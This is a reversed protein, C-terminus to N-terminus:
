KVVSMQRTVIPKNHISVSYTYIGASLTSVDLNLQGSGSLPFSRLNKGANDYVTLQANGTGAPIQYHIITTSRAPNPYNQGLVVSTLVADASQRDSLRNLQEQLKEIQDQQEQMAKVLIPILETYNVALITESPLNQPTATEGNSTSSKEMAGAPISLNPDMQTEKVLSPLVKELEQALVGYHTGPNSTLGVGLGDRRFSYSRPHIKKILSLAGDIEQINEKLRQDSAVFNGQSFVNGAFYGAYAAANVSHAYLGHGHLSVSVVGSSFMGEGASEAYLGTGDEGTCSIGFHGKVRLGVGAYGSAEARIGTRKGIGIVGAGDDDSLSVGQVGINHHSFGYVGYGSEGTSNGLLGVGDTQALISGNSRLGKDFLGDGAVQFQYGGFGTKTGILVNGAEDIRMREEGNTSLRLPAQGIPGLTATSDTNNGSTNWFPSPNQLFSDKPILSCLIIVILSLFRTSTKM